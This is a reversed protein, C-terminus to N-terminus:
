DPVDKIKANHVLADLLCLGFIVFEFEIELKAMEALDKDVKLRNLLRLHRIVRLPIVFTGEIVRENFAHRFHFHRQM